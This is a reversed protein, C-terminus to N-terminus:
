ARIMWWASITRRPTEVISLLPDAQSTELAAM